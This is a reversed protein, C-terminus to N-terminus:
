EVSIEVWYGGGSVAAAEGPCAIKREGGPLQFFSGLGAGRYGQIEAAGRYM